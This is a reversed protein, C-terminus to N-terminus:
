CRSTPGRYRAARPSECVGCVVARSEPKGASPERGDFERHRRHLVERVGRAHATWRARADAPRRHSIARRGGDHKRFWRRMKDSDLLQIGFEFQSLRPDVEVHRLLEDRLMNEDKPPTRGPNKALAVATYKVAEDPGHRFPTNSWYRLRQYLRRATKWKQPAARIGILLFGWVETPSLTTFAKLKGWLGDAELLRVFIAFSHSDNIPFTTASNLSFDHRVADPGLVGPPLSVAFSVARVDPVYDPAIKVDANAFRVTAPYTGPKAFVGHALRDRLIPDKIKQTLDYVEFTGRVCVGKTHTGRMLPRHQAVATRIQAHLIGAVIETIYADEGPLLREFTKM